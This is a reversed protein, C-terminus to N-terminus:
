RPFFARLIGPIQARWRTWSGGGPTVEFTVTHGAARMRELLERGQRDVDLGFNPNRADYRGWDLRFVMEPAADLAPGHERELLYEGMEPSSSALKGIGTLMAWLMANEITYGPAWMARDAPARSLRYHEELYPM